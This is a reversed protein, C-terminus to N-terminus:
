PTNKCSDPRYGITVVNNSIAAAANADDSTVTLSYDPAAKDLNLTLMESAQVHPPMAKLSATVTDGEDLDQDSPSLALVYTQTDKDMIRVDDTVESAGSLGSGPTATVRVGEDEADNDHNRTQLEVTQVALTHPFSRGTPTREEEPFKFSLEVSGGTGLAFDDPQGATKSDFEAATVREGLALLAAADTLSAAAVTVTVTTESGSGAAVSEIEASVTVKITTSGGEKSDAVEIKVDGGSLKQQAAAEASGLTFVAGFLAAWKLARCSGRAFIAGTRM